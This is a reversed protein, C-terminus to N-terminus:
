KTGRNEGQNKFVVIEVRGSGEDFAREVDEVGNIGSRGGGGDVVDGGGFIM